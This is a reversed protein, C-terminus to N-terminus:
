ADEFVEAFGAERSLLRARGAYELARAQLSLEREYASKGENQALSGFSPFRAGSGM